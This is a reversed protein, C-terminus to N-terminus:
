VGYCFRLWFMGSYGAGRLKAVLHVIGSGVFVELIFCEGV